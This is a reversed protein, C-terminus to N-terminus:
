HQDGVPEAPAAREGLQLREVEGVVHALHPVIARGVQLDRPAAGERAPQPTDTSSSTRGPGTVANPRAWSRSPANRKMVEGPVTTGPDSSCIPFVVERTSKPHSGPSHVSAQLAEPM